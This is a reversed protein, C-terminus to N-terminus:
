LDFLRATRMFVASNISSIRSASSPAAPSSATSAVCSAVCSSTAAAYVACSCAHQARGAFFPCFPDFVMLSRLASLCSHTPISMIVPRHIM